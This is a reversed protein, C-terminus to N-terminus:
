STSTFATLSKSAANIQEDTRDASDNYFATIAPSTAAVCLKSVNDSVSDSLGIKSLVSEPGALGDYFTVIASVATTYYFARALM